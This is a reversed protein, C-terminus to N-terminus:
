IFPNHKDKFYKKILHKMDKKKLNKQELDEFIGSWILFKECRDKRDIMGHFSSPGLIREYFNKYTKIKLFIDKTKREITSAM